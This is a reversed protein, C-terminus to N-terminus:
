AMAMQPNKKANRPNHNKCFDNNRHTDGPMVKQTIM